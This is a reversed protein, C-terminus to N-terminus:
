GRPMVFTHLGSCSRADLDAQWRRGCGCTKQVQDDDHSLVVVRQLRQRPRHGPQSQQGPLALALLNQRRARQKMTTRTMMTKPLDYDM